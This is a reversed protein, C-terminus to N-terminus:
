KTEKKSNDEDRKNGDDIEKAIYKNYVYLAAIISVFMSVM